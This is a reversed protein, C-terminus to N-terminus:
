GGAALGLTARLDPVTNNTDDVPLDAISKGTNFVILGHRQGNVTVSEVRFIGRPWFETHSMNSVIRESDSDRQVAFKFTPRSADCTRTPAWQTLPSNDRGGAAGVRAFWDRPRECSMDMIILQVTSDPSQFQSGAPLDLKPNGWAQARVRLDSTRVWQMRLNSPGSNPTEPVDEPAVPSRACAAALVLLFVIVPKKM